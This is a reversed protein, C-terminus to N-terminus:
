HLGDVIGAQFLGGLTDACLKPGRDFGKSAAQPADLLAPVFTEEHCKESAGGPLGPATPFTRDRATLDCGSGWASRQTRIGWASLLRTSVSLLSVPVLLRLDPTM